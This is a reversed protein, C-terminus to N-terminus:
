SASISRRQFSVFQRPKGLPMKSMAKGAAATKLLRNEAHIGLRSFRFGLDPLLDLKPALITFVADARMSPLANLNIETM